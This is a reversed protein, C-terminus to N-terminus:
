WWRWVLRQPCTLAPVPHRARRIRSRCSPVSTPPHWSSTRGTGTSTASATARPAVTRSTAATATTATARYRIPKTSAQHAHGLDALSALANGVAGSSRRLEHAIQRPSLDTGRHRALVEAVQRRLEGNPLRRSAPAASAATATPATPSTM